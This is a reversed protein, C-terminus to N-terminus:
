SGSAVNESVQTILQIEDDDDDEEIYWKTQILTVTVKENDVPRSFHVPVLLSTGHRIKKSVLAMYTYNAPARCKISVNM